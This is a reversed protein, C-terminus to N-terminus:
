MYSVAMEVRAECSSGPGLTSLQEGTNLANRPASWPELCCYDKGKVTWFVLLSYLDSYTIAIKHRQRQNTLSAWRRNIPMLAVDIEEREFDFHGDFPQAREAGPERYQQAPIDLSLHSKDTSRFYPHLGVSFPMVIDSRNTFHQEIILRNGQLRYTFVLEFDFPYVIRTKESSTLALTVAASDETQRDRVQWPLERAFGHQKLKYSKGNYSYTDDSLNGCIPFLVPVGGRVSLDANAFRESDMYLLEQGQIRWSTIMGGREPVVEVRAQAESDTLIYAQYQEAQKLAIAFM